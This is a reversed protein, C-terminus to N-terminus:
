LITNKPYQEMKIILKITGKLVQHFILVNINIKKKREPM